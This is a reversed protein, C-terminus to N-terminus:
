KTDTKAQNMVYESAQVANDTSAICESLLPSRVTSAPTIVNDYYTNVFYSISKSGLFHNLDLVATPRTALHSIASTFM